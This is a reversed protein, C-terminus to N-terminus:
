CVSKSMVQIHRVQVCHDGDFAVISIVGENEDLPFPSVEM